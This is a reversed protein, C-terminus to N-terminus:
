KTRWTGVLEEDITKVIEVYGTLMEFAGITLDDKGVLRRQISMYFRKMLDTLHIGTVLAAIDTGALVLKLRM